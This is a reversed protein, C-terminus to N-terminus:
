IPVVTGRLGRALGGAGRYPEEERQLSPLFSAIATEYVHSCPSRECGASAMTILSRASSDTRELHPPRGAAVGRRVRGDGVSSAEGGGSLLAAELGQMSGRGRCSHATRTDGGRTKAKETKCPVALAGSEAKEPMGRHGAGSGNASHGGGCCQAVASQWRGSRVTTHHPTQAGGKCRRYRQRHLERKSMGSWCADRVPTARNTRSFAATAATAIASGPVYVARRVPPWM